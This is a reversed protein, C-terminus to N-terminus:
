LKWEMLGAVLGRVYPVNGDANVSTAAAEMGAAASRGHRLCDSRPMLCRALFLPVLAKVATTLLELSILEGRREAESAM